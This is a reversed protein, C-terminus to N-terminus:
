RKKKKANKRAPQASTVPADYFLAELQPM